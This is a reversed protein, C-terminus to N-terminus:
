IRNSMRWADIESLIDDHHLPALQLRRDLTQVLKSIVIPAERNKVLTRLCQDLVLIKQDRLFASLWVNRLSEALIRVALNEDAFPGELTKFISRVEPTIHLANQKLVHTLLTHGVATFHYNALILQACKAFYQEESILGQRVMDELVPQTWFGHIGMDSAAILRLRLDDSYLASQTQQAVVLVAISNQAPLYQRNEDSFISLSSPDLPVIQCHGRVFDRLHETQQVHREIVEGSVEYWTFRGDEFSVNKFGAKGTSQLGIIHLNLTDLVTQPIYLREFRQSLLDLTELYASTLLATLDLTAAHAERVQRRQQKQEERSGISALIRYNSQGALGGWLAVENKGTIAALQSFTLQGGDYLKYLEQLRASQGAVITLFQTPNGPDVHMKSIGTNEPFWTGFHEWTDQFARVYISQIDEITLTLDAIPDKKVQVVQGKQHGVMAQAMPDSISFENRGRDAPLNSLFTLWYPDTLAERVLVSTDGVVTDAEFASPDSLSHCNFIQVYALHIDPQNFGLQRACYALRMVGNKEGLFTLMEAVEMLITADEILIHKVRSLLELAAEKNGSRFEARAQSVVYQPRDPQLLALESYVKSAASLDGTQEYIWALIELVTPHKSGHAKLDQAAQYAQAYQQSKYLAILYQRAFPTDAALVNEVETYFHIAKEFNGADFYHSAIRLALRERDRGAAHQHADLLCQLAEDRKDQLYEIFAVAELLVPDNPHDDLTQQQYRNLKEHAGSKLYAQATLTFVENFHRSKSDEPIRDLVTLAKDPENEKLHAEALPLFVMYNDWQEEPITTLCKVALKADGQQSALLGRNLLANIHRPDENLVNDCDLVAEKLRGRTARIGAREAFADHLRRRNDGHQLIAIAGDALEEAELLLSSLGNEELPSIFIQSRFPESTIFMLTEALAMLSDPNKSDLAIAQRFMGEAKTYDKAQLFISGLARLYGDDGLYAENILQEPHELNHLRALAQVHIAPASTSEKGESAHMAKDALESAAQYEGKLLKALAQNAIAKPSDPSYQVAHEFLAVAENQNGLELECSGLNTELRFRLSDSVEIDNIAKALSELIHKAAVPQGQLLHDRAGNIQLFFAREDIPTSAPPVEPPLSVSSRISRDELGQIMQKIETLVRANALEGAARSRKAYKDFIATFEELEAHININAAKLEDGIRHWELVGTLSETNMEVYASQFGQQVTPHRLFELVPKPKSGDQNFEVLAYIYCGSFDSPSSDPKFGLKDLIHLTAESRKARDTLMPASALLLEITISIPDPLVPTM